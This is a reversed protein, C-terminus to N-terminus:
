VFFSPNQLGKGGTLSVPMVMQQPGADLCPCVCVMQVTRPCVSGGCYEYVNLKVLLFLILLVAPWLSPSLVLESCSERPWVPFRCHSPPYSWLSTILAWEPLFPKQSIFITLKIGKEAMVQCCHLQLQGLPSNFTFEREVNANSNKAKSQKECFCLM